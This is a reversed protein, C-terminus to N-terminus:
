LKKASTKEQLYRKFLSYFNDMENEFAQKINLLNNTFVFIFYQYIYFFFIFENKYYIFICVARKEDDEINRSLKDLEIRLQKSAVTITNAEFGQLYKIIFM